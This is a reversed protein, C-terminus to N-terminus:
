SGPFHEAVYAGVAQSSPGIQYLARRHESANLVRITREQDIGAGTLYDFVNVLEGTKCALAANDLGRIIEQPVGNKALDTRQLAATVGFNEPAGRPYSACMREVFSNSQVM